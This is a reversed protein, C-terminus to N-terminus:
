RSAALPMRSAEAEAGHNGDLGDAALTTHFSLPFGISVTRAVMRAKAVTTVRKTRPKAAM